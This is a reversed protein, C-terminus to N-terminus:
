PVGRTLRRSQVAAAEWTKGLSVRVRDVGKCGAFGLIGRLAGVKGMKPLSAAGSGGTRAYRRSFASSCADVYRKPLGEGRRTAVVQRGTWRGRGTCCGAGDKRRALRQFGSRRDNREYGLRRAAALHGDVNMMMLMLVVAVVALMAVLLSSMAAAPLPPAAAPADAAAFGRFSRVEIHEYQPM